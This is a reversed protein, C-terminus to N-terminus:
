PFKSVWVDDVVPSLGEGIFDMNAQSLTAPYTSLWQRWFQKANRIGGGMTDPGSTFNSSDIAMPGAGTNPDIRVFYPSAIEQSSLSGGGETATEGVGPTTGDPRVPHTMGGDLTGSPGAYPEDGVTMPGGTAGLDSSVASPSRTLLAGFAGGLGIGTALEMGSKGNIYSSTTQLLAKGKIYLQQKDSIAIQCDGADGGPQCNAEVDKSARAYAQETTTLLSQYCSISQGNCSATRADLYKYKPSLPVPPRTLNSPMLLRPSTYKRVKSMWPARETSAFEFCM